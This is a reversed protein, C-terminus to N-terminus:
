ASWSSHVVGVLYWDGNYWEFVLKLATWGSQGSGPRYFEVFQGDPYADAANELANGSVQVSNVSLRLDALYDQDWVYATFYDSITLSIPSAADSTTGWVYTSKSTGADAIQSATFIQNSSADVTASPSFTVGKEPHVYQSLASYDGDRIVKATELAATTLSLSGGPPQSEKADSSVTLSHIVRESIPLVKPLALGALLGLIFTFVAIFVISRRETMVGRRAEM